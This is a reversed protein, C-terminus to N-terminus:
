PGSLVDLLGVLACAVGIALGALAITQRNRELRVGVGIPLSWVPVLSVGIALLALLLGIAALLMRPSVPDNTSAIAAAAVPANALKTAVPPTQRPEPVVVVRQKQQAAPRVRQVRHPKVTQSSTTAVPPPPPPAVVPPPPPPPQPAPPPPPPPPPPKDPTPSTMPTAGTATATGALTVGALLGLVGVAALVAIGIKSAM